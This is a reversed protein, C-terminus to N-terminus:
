TKDLQKNLDRTLKSLEYAKEYGEVFWDDQEQQWEFEDVYEQMSEFGNTLAKGFEEIARQTEKNFTEYALEITSAWVSTFNTTDEL